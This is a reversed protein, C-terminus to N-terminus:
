KHMQCKSCLYRYMPMPQTSGKQVVGTATTLRAKPPVQASTANIRTSLELQRPNGQRQNPRPAPRTSGNPCSRDGNTLWGGGGQVVTPMVRARFFKAQQTRSTSCGAASSRSSNAAPCTRPPEDSKTLINAPAPRATGKPHGLASMALVAGAAMPPHHLGLEESSVGSPSQQRRPAKVTTHTPAAPDEQTPKRDQKLFNGYTLM